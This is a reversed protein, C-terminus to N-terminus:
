ATLIQVKAGTFRTFQTGVWGGISHGLVSVKVDPGYDDEVQQFAKDLAEYFFGLTKAPRLSATFFDQARVCLSV